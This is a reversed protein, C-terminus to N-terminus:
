KTTKVLEELLAGGATNKKSGIHIGYSQLIKKIKTNM